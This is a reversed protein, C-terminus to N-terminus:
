YRHLARYKQYKHASCYFGVFYFFNTPLIKKLTKSGYKFQVFGVHVGCSDWLFVSNGVNLHRLYAMKVLFCPFIVRIVVILLPINLVLLYYYIYKNTSIGQELCGSRFVCCVTESWFFAFDCWLAHSSM